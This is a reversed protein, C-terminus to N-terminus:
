GRGNYFSARGRIQLFLHVVLEIGIFGLGGLWWVLWPAPRPGALLTATWAMARALLAGGIFWVLIRALIQVARAAPIRPRLVNLFFLEVFHGGLAPWLAILTAGSWRALGGSAWPRAIAAGIIIAIAGTRLLTTHFAERYPQCSPPM